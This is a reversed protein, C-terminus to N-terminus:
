SQAATSLWEQLGSQHPSYTLRSGEHRGVISVTGTNGTPISCDQVYSLGHFRRCRCRLGKLFGGVPGTKRLDTVLHINKAMGMLVPEHNVRIIIDYKLVESIFIASKHVFATSVLRVCSPWINQFQLRQRWPLFSATNGAFLTLM